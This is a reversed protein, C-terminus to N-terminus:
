LLGRVYAAQGAHQLDDNIVSILRVALTVPPNWNRDVVKKYDGEGLEGIFKVTEAHVADYYGLLLEANAKLAAVEEATQSWGTASKDFPLNFKEAWGDALWVQKTGAAGAMHDDQIRTLHWVLWAISNTNDSPQFTLQSEDLGRVASHVVHKVREFADFLLDNTLM